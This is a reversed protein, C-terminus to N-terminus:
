RINSKEAKRGGIANKWNDGEGFIRWKINRRKWLLNSKEDKANKFFGFNWFSILLVKSFLFPFTAKWKKAKPRQSACRPSMHSHPGFNSTIRALQGIPRGSSKWKEVKEEKCMEKQDEGVLNQFQLLM